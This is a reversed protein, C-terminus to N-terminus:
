AELASLEHRGITMWDPEGPRAVLGDMPDPEQERRERRIRRNRERLAAHPDDKAAPPKKERLGLDREGTRVTATLRRREGVDGTRHLDDIVRILRHASDVQHPSWSWGEGGPIWWSGWTERTAQRFRGPPMPKGEAM